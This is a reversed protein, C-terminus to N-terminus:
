ELDYEFVTDQRDSVWHPMSPMLIVVIVSTFVERYSRDILVDYLMYIYYQICYQHTTYPYVIM